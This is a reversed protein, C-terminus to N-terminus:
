NYNPNSTKDVTSIHELESLVALIEIPKVVRLMDSRGHQVYDQVSMERWGTKPQNDCLKWDDEENSKHLVYVDISRRLGLGYFEEAVIKAQSGDTREIIRTIKAM